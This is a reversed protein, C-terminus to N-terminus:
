KLIKIERILNIDHEVEPFVSNLKNKLENNKGEDIFSYNIKQIFDMKNLGLFFSLKISIRLLELLYRALRQLNIDEKKIFKQLEKSKPSGHAYCSRISYSFAIIKSLKLADLGLLGFIKSIRIKIKFGITEKDNSSLYIAELGMIIEAILKDLITNRSTRLVEKYRQFAISRSYGANDKETTTFIQDHYKAYNELFRKFYPVDKQTIKYSFRGNMETGIHRTVGFSNKFLFYQTIRRDSYEVSGAKFLLLANYIENGIIRKINPDVDNAFKTIYLTASYDSKAKEEYTRIFDRERVRDLSVDYSKYKLVIAANPIIILNKVRILIEWKCQQEIVIEDLIKLIHKFDFDRLTKNAACYNVFIGVVNVVNQYIFDSEKYKQILKKVRIDDIVAKLLTERLKFNTDVPYYVYSLCSNHSSGVFGSSEYSDYSLKLNTVEMNGYSRLEIKGLSLLNRLQKTTIETALVQIKRFILEM